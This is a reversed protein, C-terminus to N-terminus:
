VEMKLLGTEERILYSPVPRTAPGKVVEGTRINFVSGHCHCRVTEGELKSTSLKCGRHTCRDEIAFFNNGLKVVLIQKGDIEVHTMPHHVFDRTNGLVMEVM